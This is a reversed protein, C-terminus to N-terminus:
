ELVYEIYNGFGKQVPLKKNKLESWIKRDLDYAGKKHLDNLEKESIHVDYYKENLKISLQYDNFKMVFVEYSSDWERLQLEITSAVHQLFDEAGLNLSLYNRTMGNINM